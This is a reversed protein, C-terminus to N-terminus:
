SSPAVPWHRRYGARGHRLAGYRPRLRRVADKVRPQIMDEFRKIDNAVKGSIGAAMDAAGVGGAQIIAATADVLTRHFERPLMPWDSQDAGRVVDGVQVRSLDTGAAFTVSTNTTVDDLSAGVVHVEHGGTSSVVDVTSSSTIASGTDRDTPTVAMLAVRTSTNISTIVGATQEQVLRPPRLYYWFRIDYNSNDPTPVLRVHDGQVYYRQPRGSKTDQTAWEEPPAEEIVYYRDTSSPRIEIAKLVGMLARSPIPYLSTGSVADVVQDQLWYGGKSALVSRGFVTQLTDNVEERIRTDSYDPHSDGLSAVLRVAALVESDDM